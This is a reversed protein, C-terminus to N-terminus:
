GESHQITQYNRMMETNIATSIQLMQIRDWAQNYTYGSHGISDFTTM